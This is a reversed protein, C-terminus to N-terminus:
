TTIMWKVESLGALNLTTLDYVWVTDFRASLWPASGNQPTAEARILASPASQVCDGGEAQALEGHTTARDM